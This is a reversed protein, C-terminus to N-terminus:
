QGSSQLFFSIGIAFGGITSITAAIAGVSGIITWKNTFEHILGEFTIKVEFKEVRGDKWKMEKKLPVKELLKKKDLSDIIELGKKYDMGIGNLLQIPYLSGQVIKDHNQMHLLIGKESKNLRQYWKM